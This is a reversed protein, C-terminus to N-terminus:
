SHSSSQSRPLSCRGIRGAPFRDTWATYSERLFIIGGLVAFAPFTTAKALIGLAGAVLAVAMFIPRPERFYRALYALWCLSFFVACTEMMFTRSWYVYIPSLLFLIAVCLFATCDFRLARFLVHMPWLCGVFFGFSVVRGAAELPLGSRTLLAVIMQYLPFEFPISWPFGAVPTEYAFIPGGRVLWYATLATQAQRFAYQDLLPQFLGRWLVALGYLCALILMGLLVGRLLRERRALAIAPALLMLDDDVSHPLALIPRSDTNMAKNRLRELRGELIYRAWSINFFRWEMMGAARRVIPMSYARYQSLLAAAPGDLASSSLICM